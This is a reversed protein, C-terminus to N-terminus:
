PAAAAAAAPGMRELLARLEAAASTLADRPEVQGTLARHLWIQLTGSLETYVPVVPRPVASEIAARAQDVPIPLAETLEPLDYLASRTPYHGAARARELMQEPATLFHLVRWAAEPARSHANIALQQGGLASARGGGPGAPLPAVAFRGAVSSAGADALLPYAYPWNRMFAAEGNQFAFRTQEEQWTLADEPTIGAPSVSERMFELARVAAEEDVRVEGADDLIRGGFAHLHELFVTVLGEYRAGQWVFGYPV